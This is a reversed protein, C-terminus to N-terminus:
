HLRHHVDDASSCARGRATATASGTILYSGTVAGGSLKRGYSTSATSGTILYVGTDAPLGPDIHDLMQAIDFDPPAAINTSRDVTDSSTAIVIDAAIDVPQQSHTM